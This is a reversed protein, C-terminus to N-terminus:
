VKRKEVYFSTDVGNEVIVIKANININSFFDYWTQSLVIVYDSLELM